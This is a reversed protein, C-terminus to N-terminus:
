PGDVRRAVMQLGKKPRLTVMPEPVVTQGPVLDLRLQRTLVALVLVAEMMAFTNGICQRPGGGFPFYAFRPMAAIKEPAFRTPDFGEPNEWLGPHRHTVYPSLLVYSGKPVSYGCIVMDARPARSVLWAPPYLRMAEEIVMTTYKLRLFDEAGPARDGVVAAVEARIQRAADPHKSLLYFTWALATATTEHGALFITMVEDRLQKDTMGEGTAEDRADLLMTLLDEPRGSVSRRREDIMRYVVTDLTRLAERLKLNRPTPVHPPLSFMHTVRARTDALIFSLAGGIADADRSVDTSLLTEGAIRLTLRMMETMVDFPRGRDALASWDNATEVAARTMVSALAAIRQRHFAPQAIRRQRLWVKGDSTLLGMGLINRLTLFGRTEKTFAKPNDQLVYKIAEPSRVLHTIKPGFRIRVIDGYDRASQSFLALPDRRLAPFNSLLWHGEPGPAIKPPPSAQYSATAAETM